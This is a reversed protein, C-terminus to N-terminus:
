SPRLAIERISGDQILQDTEGKLYRIVDGLESILRELSDKVYGQEFRPLPEPLEDEDLITYSGSPMVMLDVIMDTYSVTGDGFATDKVINFYSGLYIGDATRWHYVNYPRETWYYAVTLTGAPIQLSEGALEMQFSQPIEYLLVLEHDRQRVFRCEYEAVSGDYRTKLEKVFM